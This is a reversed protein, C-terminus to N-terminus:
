IEDTFLESSEIVRTEVEYNVRGLIFAKLDTYIPDNLVTPSLVFLNNKIPRTVINRKEQEIFNVFSKYDTGSFHEEILDFLDANQQHTLVIGVM